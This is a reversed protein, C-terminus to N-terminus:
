AAITDQIVKAAYGPVELPLVETPYGPWQGTRLCEAFLALLRRYKRRGYEVFDSGARYYATAFPADREQALWAFQPPAKTKFHHQFGDSYFAAQYFMEGNWATRAFGERSGDDTSKGDIILGNPFMECPPVAYDPRIRCPAGTLEDIWMISHEAMGGPLSFIVQTVPHRHAAASMKRIASLDDESFLMKGVLGPALKMVEDLKSQEVGIKDQEALEALLTKGEKSAKSLGDPIAVHKAKFGEFDALADNLLKALTSAPAIDPRAAYSSEFLHPEWIGTHWATGMQMIRSPETKERDPNLPSATWFHLPSRELKKFGSSGIHPLSHYDANTMEPILGTLYNDNM